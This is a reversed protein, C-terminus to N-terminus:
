VWLTSNEKYIALAKELKKHYGLSIEIGCSVIHAYWGCGKRRVGEFRPYIAVGPKLKGVETYFARRPNVNILNDWRNDLSNSNLHYLRTAPYTGTQHLWIIYQIPIRYGLICVAIFTSHKGGVISGKVVKQGSFNTNSKWRLAGDRPSYTFAWRVLEASIEPATIQKLKREM